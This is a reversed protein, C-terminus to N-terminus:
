LARSGGQAHLARQDAPDADQVQGQTSSEAQPGYDIQWQQWLLMGVFVLGAFLFLRTNDM